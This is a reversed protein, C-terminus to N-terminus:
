YPFDITFSNPPSIKHLCKIIHDSCMLAKQISLKLAVTEKRGKSIVRETDAIIKITKMVMSHVLPSQMRKLGDSASYRAYWDTNIQPSVQRVHRPSAPLSMKVDCVHCSADKGLGKKGEEEKM